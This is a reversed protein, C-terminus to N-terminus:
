AGVVKRPYVIIQNQDGYTCNGIFLTDETNNNEDCVKVGYTYIEYSKNAPVKLLDTYDSTLFFTVFETKNAAVQLESGILNRKEDQIAFYVIYNKVPNLGSIKIEGSDGQYLTVTGKEDIILAMGKGKLNHLIGQLKGIFTVTQVM